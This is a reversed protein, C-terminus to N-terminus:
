TEEMLIRPVCAELTSDGERLLVSSAHMGLSEDKTAHSLVPEIGSNRNESTV